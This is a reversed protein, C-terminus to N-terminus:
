KKVVIFAPTLLQKKKEQLAIITAKQDKALAEKIQKEIVQLARFPWRKNDNAQRFRKSFTANSM